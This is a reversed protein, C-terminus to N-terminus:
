AAREVDPGIPITCRHRASLRLAMLLEIPLVPNFTMESRAMAVASSLSVIGAVCIAASLRVFM